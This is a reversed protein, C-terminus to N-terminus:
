ICNRMLIDFHRDAGTFNISQALFFGYVRAADLYVSVSKENSIAKLLPITVPASVIYAGGSIKASFGKIDKRIVTSAGGTSIKVGDIVEMLDASSMKQVAPQWTPEQSITLYATGGRCFISAKLPPAGSLRSVSTLTLGRGLPELRWPDTRPRDNRLSLDSVEADSLLRIPQWPQVSSAIAQLRADVGMEVLHRLVVAGLTQHASLTLASFAIREPETLAEPTFFQHVGIKSGDVITRRVGGAFAYVCASHCEGAASVTYRVGPERETRSVTTWIGYRRIIEGMRIGAILNGGPSHFHVDLKGTNTELDPINKKLFREFREPAGSDIEGEATLWACDSCNGGSDDFLFSMQEARAHTAFFVALMSLTLALKKRM